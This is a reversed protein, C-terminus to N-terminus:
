NECIKKLKVLAKPWIDKFMKEFEENSDVDVKVETVGATETFTYNEYAPAWAKVEPSETDEVGGKIYGLHKISIFDYKRNEAIVAVMGEGSPSLFRIKAGKDWSGEYYSGETFAETWKNYTDPELMVKWVKEEPSNISIVFHLKKM